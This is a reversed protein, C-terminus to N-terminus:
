FLFLLFLCVTSLNQKIISNLTHKKKVFHTPVPDAFRFIRFQIRFLDNPIWLVPHLIPPNYSLFSAPSPICSLHSIPCTPETIHLRDLRSRLRCRKVQEPDLWFARSPGVGAGCCQTPHLVLLICSLFFASFSPNWSQFSEPSSPYLYIFALSHIQIRM